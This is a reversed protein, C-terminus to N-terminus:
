FEKTESTPNSPDLPVDTIYHNVPDYRKSIFTEATERTTFAAVVVNQYATDIYMVIFVRNM